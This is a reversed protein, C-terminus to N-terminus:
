DGNNLMALLSIVKAIKADTKLKIGYFYQQIFLWIASGEFPYKVNLVFFLKFLADIGEVISSVKYNHNAVRVFIQSINRVNGIVVIQPQVPLDFQSCFNSQEL